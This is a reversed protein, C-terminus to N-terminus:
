MKNKVYDTNGKTTKISPHAPPLSKQQIALAKELFSLARLYEGMNDYVLGINNYSTALSPHNPPLTEEYIKFSKEYFELAKSYDGMNVYVTGINSYSTALSPHNPPLAKEKIKLTKEYFELAKSYDGMNVYVGGINSYSTALDPHNSPLAKKTIELDKEYFELAKSYDGINVYVSGINSYSSALDPCNPPLAIEKIKLSKEYFELAKSYDGMNDYVSGMNNYSTALSPHNPPLAIEMVKLSKEYFELAKTYDGMNDYVSGMNNYSTTLDLHSLPLAKKQIKLTKEYFALAQSYDGISTYVNGINSYTSALSSDDEPLTKRKINLSKKCFTVAEDYQGQCNKLWGLQHYIHARGSDDSTQELLTLYLEEAKDLQSIELLLQGMRHWGTGSVNKRIFDSLDRLQPDNGSTLKIDVEYISNNKINKRIEGIRFVTHMSFLIEEEGKFHSVEKINAFPATSINTDVTIQFLTGIMDPTRLAEKVFNLSVDRKTSTSLFNNFSILGGKNNAIKEFDTKSLGQGRFVTFIKESYHSIQNKYMTEIQRHLDCLFFGMRIMIDGNLTRLAGNLMKYTFCQRTYWWIANSAQYTRQFEKIIKMQNHNGQYVQQCYTVLDQVAKQDHEIELLIEKFIQSYMFSPELQDLNKSSGGESLSVISVPINDENCQKIAAALEEYIPTIRTHVGKIKPWHQTWFQHQQEHGSYIFIGKLTEMDHIDPVLHQGIASSAIIFSIEEENDVMHQICQEATTCPQVENILAKLQAMTYQCDENAMDINGDIWIVLYNEAIRQRPNQIIKSAM